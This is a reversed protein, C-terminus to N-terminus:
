DDAVSSLAILIRLVYWFLLAVSAFLSLAAAVHQETNYNHIIRSTTYLIATGAFAVMISSFILGLSFGFVISCVIVGLAICGGIKLIGGLFSFDKRTTFATVTLGLFLLGTIVAAIPITDPSAFNAAIYLLPVFIIAEALVYVGLGIYQTSRSTASQAWKDAIFSVVMFAGLVILWAWRGGLMTRTMAEAVGSKFLVFEIAMFALIAYALHQYTRRIFAARVDDPAQAAIYAGTLQQTETHM